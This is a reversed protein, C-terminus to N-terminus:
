SHRRPLDAQRQALVPSSRAELTELLLPLISAGDIIRDVPAPVGAAALVTSFIDHGIVPESSVIGPTVYGGDHRSASSVRFVSVARMPTHRAVAFAVLPDVSTQERQGPRGRSSRQRQHVLDSTM